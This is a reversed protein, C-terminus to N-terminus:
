PCAKDLAEACQLGGSLLSAAHLNACSQWPYEGQGGARVCAVIAACQAASTFGPGASSAQVCAACGAPICALPPSTESTSVTEPRGSDPLGPLARVNDAAGDPTGGDSVQDASVETVEGCGFLQLVAIACGLLFAWRIPRPRSAAAPVPPPSVPQYPKRLERREITALTDGLRVIIPM